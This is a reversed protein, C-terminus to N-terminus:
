FDPDHEIPDDPFSIAVGIALVDRGTLLMHFHQPVRRQVLLEKGLQRLCYEQLRECQLSSTIILRAQHPVRTIAPVSNTCPQSVGCGVWSKSAGVSACIFIRLKWVRVKSRSSRRRAMRATMAAKCSKPKMM